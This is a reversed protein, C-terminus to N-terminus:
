IRSSNVMRMIETRQVESTNCILDRPLAPCGPSLLPSEDENYFVRATKEVRAPYAKKKTKSLVAENQKISKMKQEFKKKQQLFQHVQSQPGVAAPKGAQILNNYSLSQSLSGIQSKVKSAVETSIMQHGGHAEPKGVGIAYNHHGAYNSEQRATNFGEISSTVKLMKKSNNPFNKFNPILHRHQIETRSAKEKPIRSSHM